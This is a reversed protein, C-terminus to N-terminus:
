KENLKWDYTLWDLAYGDFRDPTYKQAFDRVSAFDEKYWKLISSLHVKKKTHDVRLGQPSTFFINGQNDLQTSLRSGEYAESRLPPCSKAACVLALHIRPEAYEKRIIEHEITDLSIDKGFFSVFEKSWPTKFLSGIDKISNLPYHDIILQLTAANYLNILYALRTNKNWSDFEEKSVKAMKQLYSDLGARHAKLGKYDVKGKHVYQKLLADYPAHLSASQAIGTYVFLFMCFFVVYLKKM